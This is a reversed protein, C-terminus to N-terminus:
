DLPISVLSLDVSILLIRCPSSYKPSPNRDVPVDSDERECVMKYTRHDRWVCRRCICYFSRVFRVWINPSHFHSRFWKFNCCWYSSRKRNRRNERYTSNPTTGIGFDTRFSRISCFISIKSKSSLSSSRRTISLKLVPSRNTPMCSALRDGYQGYPM